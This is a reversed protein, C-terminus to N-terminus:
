VICAKIETDAMLFIKLLAPNEAAVGKVIRNNVFQPLIIREKTNNIMGAGELILWTVQKAKKTTSESFEELEPHLEIKRNFFSRFDGDNLHYDLSLFKERVVEVIFDRIFPYAKCIGLLAIQRQGDVDLEALLARQNATLCLYRKFLENFERKTTSKKSRSLIFDPDPMENVVDIRNDDIYRVMRMFDQFMFAAGTFSFSYVASTTTM